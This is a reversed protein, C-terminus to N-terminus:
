EAKEGEEADPFSIRALITGHGTEDLSLTAEEGYILKLRRSVNLIGVSGSSEDADRLQAAIRARDEDSM